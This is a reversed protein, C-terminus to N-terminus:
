IAIRRFVRTVSAVVNLYGTRGRGDALEGSRRSLLRPSRANNILEQVGCEFTRGTGPAAIKVFSRAFYDTTLLELSQEDFADALARRFAAM